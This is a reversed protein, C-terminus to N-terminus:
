VGWLHLFVEMCGATLEPGGDSSLEEPVVFTTFFSRLHRILGAAGPPNHRSFIWFSRGLRFAIVSWSTIAAVMPSSTPLLLRLCPLPHPVVYRECPKVPNASFVISIFLFLPGLGSFLLPPHTRSCIFNSTGFLHTVVTSPPMTPIPLTAAQTPANRNRNRTNRINTSMGPWYIIAQARQKM